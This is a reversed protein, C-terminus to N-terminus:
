TSIAFFLLFSSSFFLVVQRRPQMNVPVQSAIAPLRKFVVEAMMGVSEMPMHYLQFFDSVLQVLDHQEGERIVLKLKRTDPADIPVVLLVRRVFSTDLRQKVRRMLARCWDSDVPDKSSEYKACFVGIHVAYIHLPSYFIVSYSYYLM